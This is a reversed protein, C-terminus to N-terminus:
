QPQGQEDVYSSAISRTGVDSLIGLVLLVLFAMAIIFVLRHVPRGGALHMFFAVVLVAKGTAIAFAVLLGWDGTVARSAFLTITALVVLAIWVLVYGLARPEHGSEGEPPEAARTLPEVDNM